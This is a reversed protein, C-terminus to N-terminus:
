RCSGVWDGSYFFKGLTLTNIELMKVLNRKSLTLINNCEVLKIKTMFFAMPDHELVNM